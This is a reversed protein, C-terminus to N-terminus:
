SDAKSETVALEREIADTLRDRVAPIAIKAIIEGFFGRVM